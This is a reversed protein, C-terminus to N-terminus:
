EEDGAEDVVLTILMYGVTAIAIISIISLPLGARVFDGVTLFQQNLDDTILLSNVNPFSSFPLAMAASVALASGIVVEAPAELQVGIQGIVPMLIISAVTHSVFTAVSASFFFICCMSVWKHEVPITNGISHALAELLGSSEVAKGLVNGGGLLMLTHWPLSNFDVESLLGSGFMTGVFVLSIVSVDGIIDKIMESFAFMVITLLSFLIVTVNRMSVLSEENEFVIVPISCVDIPPIMFLLLSWSTITLLFALPLAFAIWTGFGVDLGSHELQGVALANQLSSIPTLMGGFNCAFALGLLLCRAFSSKVGLDRVIPSIISGVLIPATHNSIWMSLFLGLLMIALIFFKPSNAFTRQLESAIRLELQCRSFAASIAFGGLLLISTHNFFHGMVMKASDERHLVLHPNSPDTFCDTLITLPGILLSTAYYPLAESVWLSIVLVVVALCRNSALESVINDPNSVVSLNCCIAYLTVSLAVMSVKVGPFLKSKRSPGYSRMSLIDWELLTQRNVMNSVVEMLQTPESSVSFSQKEVTSSWLRLNSEEMTKDYKKVIKTFATKNLTSYSKLASLEIYLKRLRDMMKNKLGGTHHLLAANQWKSSIEELSVKLEALKGTFFGNIKDLEEHLVAFFDEGSSNEDSEEIHGTKSYLSLDSTRRNVIREGSGGNSDPNKNNNNDNHKNNNNNSKKNNNITASHLLPTSEVPSIDFNTNNSITATPQSSTGDLDTSVMTSSLTVSDVPINNTLTALGVLSDGGGIKIMQKVEEAVKSDKVFKIRKIIRKLRSYSLYYDRWPEYCGLQLQKGFKM